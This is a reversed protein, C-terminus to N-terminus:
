EWGWRLLEERAAAARRRQRDAMAVHHVTGLGNRGADAGPTRSTSPRARREGNVALRIRSGIRGVVTYGLM